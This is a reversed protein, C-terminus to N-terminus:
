PHVHRMFDFLEIGCTHSACSAAFSEPIERLLVAAAAEQVSPNFPSGHEEVTDFDGQKAGCRECHNMWYFSQTTQSFDTWYHPALSRLREAIPDPLYEIYSLRTPAEAVQWEDDAPDDDVHLVEHGAPLLIAFVRTQRSCRWCERASEALFYSDARINPPEPALIWKSLPADDVGPPVYWVRLRPDWRAGLRKAQDKEAIPVRLDIRSAGM